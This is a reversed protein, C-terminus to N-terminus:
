RQCIIYQSIRDPIYPIYELSRSAMNDSMNTTTQTHTPPQANTSTTIHKDNHATIIRQPQTSHIHRQPQTNHNHATSTDKHGRTQSQTKTTTNTVTDEYNHKHNHTRTNTTTHKHKRSHPPTTHQPQADHNRTTSTDNHILCVRVGRDVIEYFVMACLLASRQRASPFM